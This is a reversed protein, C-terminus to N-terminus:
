AVELRVVCQRTNAQEQTKKDVPPALLAGLKVESLIPFAKTLAAALAVDAPM